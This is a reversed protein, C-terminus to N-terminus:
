NVRIPQKNEYAPICKRILSSLGENKTAEALQLARRASVLAEDFLRNEAYAAALVQHFDADNPSLEVARQAMRLAEPGKRFQADKATAMIWALERLIKVNNPERDLGSLFVQVAENRRGAVDLALGLLSHGERIDPDKALEEGLYQIAEQIRRLGAMTKVYNSRAIVFDPDLEMAKRYHELASDYDNQHSLWQAEENQAEASEPDALSWAHAIQLAKNLDKARQYIEILLLRSKSHRPNIQLAKSLQAEAEPRKGQADLISAYVYRFDPDGPHDDIVAECYRAAEEFRRSNFLVLLYANRAEISYPNLALIKLISREAEDYKELLVSVLSLENIADINESDERVVSLLLEHVKELDGSEVLLQSMRRKLDDSGPRKELGSKFLERTKGVVDPTMQASMKRLLRHRALQKERHHWQNKFPPKSLLQETLKRNIQLQDWDTYVLSNAISEMSTSFDPSLGLKVIVAEALAKAVLFNGAFSLHVHDYFVDDGPISIAGSGEGEFLQESDVLTVQGVHRISQERIVANVKSDARFRLGDMDRAKKFAVLAEETKGTKLEALGLQYQADATDSEKSAFPPSDKLNVGVTSLIVPCDEDAAASILDSLNRDFHRYVTQLREDDEYLTNQQYSEMDKWSGNPTLHRGTLVVLLQYLRLSKISQSLRILSLNRSFGSYFTGVGYPGVVENNGLYVLLFDPDYQLCANAVPLMVHSNVAPIAANLVEIKRKPYAQELMVQLQSSIGFEEAPFGHAASGGLVFIRLSGPEKKAAFELSKMSRAVSWPFYKFTFPWNSRVIGKEEVFVHTNYGFGTLRLGLEIVMFLLLPVVLVAIFRFAILKFRTM